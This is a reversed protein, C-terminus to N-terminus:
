AAVLWKSLPAAFWGAHADPIRLQSWDGDLGYGQSYALNAAMSEDRVHRVYVDRGAACIAAVEYDPDFLVQADAM